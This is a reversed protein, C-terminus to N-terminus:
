RIHAGSQIIPRISIDWLCLLTVNLGIGLTGLRSAHWLTIAPASIREDLNAQRSESVLRNNPRQALGALMHLGNM